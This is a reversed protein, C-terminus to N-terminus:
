VLPSFRQYVNIFPYVTFLILGAMFPALFAIPELIVRLKTPKDIQAAENKYIRKRKM